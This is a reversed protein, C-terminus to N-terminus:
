RIDKTSFRALAATLTLAAFGLQGLVRIPDVGDILPSGYQEFISLHLVARPWHLLPALLTLMFSALVLAILIGTVIRTRLWGALLYGISGVILGIPVMSFAATAVRRIELRLGVSVSAVATGAVIFAAVIMLGLAVSAFRALMLRYRPSPTALVLDLRGEEEEGAWRSALAVAFGAVVVVLIAFIGHLLLMNSTIDGGRSFRDILEAFTPNNRALDALLDDLNEQVQRLLATLLLAYSGLAVGWWLAPM